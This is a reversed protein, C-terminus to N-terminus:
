SAVEAVARWARQSVKKASEFGQSIYWRYLERAAPKDLYQSSEQDTGWTEMQDGREAFYVASFGKHNRRVLKHTDSNM